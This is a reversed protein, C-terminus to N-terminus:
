PMIILVLRTNTANWTKQELYNCVPEFHMAHCSTSHQTRSHQAVLVLSEAYNALLAARQFSALCQIFLQLPQEAGQSPM